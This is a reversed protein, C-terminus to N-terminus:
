QIKDQSTERDEVPHIDIWKRLAELLQTFDWEQWNRSWSGSQGKHRLSQTQRDRKSCKGQGGPTKWPDGVVTCQVDYDEYFQHVKPSHSGALKRVYRTFSKVPKGM